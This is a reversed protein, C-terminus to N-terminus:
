TSGLAAFRALMRDSDPEVGTLLRFAEVAQFVAMGGGDLTLAGLARARELLETERPFYIIEAVWLDPRLMEPPLPTGPHSAMGVPTTNILGDAARVAKELDQGVRARGAGFHASLKAALREARATELDVITLEEVGLSLAGHAVAAAAGGAGLQVVRDRKVDAMRRRFPEAFGSLDTNFGIREGDKLLITNVAGLARASDSLETLLPIVAQKYPHTINLGNFGLDEAASLLEPLSRVDRGIRELDILRFVYRIGQAAGEAEHLDPTLSGQIGHGILGCLVSRQPSSFAYDATELGGVPSSTRDRFQSTMATVGM